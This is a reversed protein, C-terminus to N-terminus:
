AKKATYFVPLPEFSPEDQAECMTFLDDLCELFDINKSVRAEQKQEQKQQKMFEAMTSQQQQVALDRLAHGVKERAQKENLEIFEKGKKKLFRAGAEDRLMRVISIILASKEHRSKASLYKPINMTITIRFRRNGVHNFSTKCRGCLIDYPGLNEYTNQHNGAIITSYATM